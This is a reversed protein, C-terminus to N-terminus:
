AEVLAKQQKVIGAEKLVAALGAKISLGAKTSRPRVQPPQWEAPPGPHSAHKAAPQLCDLIRNGGRVMGELGEGAEVPLRARPPLPQVASAPRFFKSAPFLKGKYIVADVDSGIDAELVIPDDQRGTGGKVAVVPMAPPVTAISSAKSTLPPAQQPAASNASGQIRSPMENTTRKYSALWKARMYDTKRWPPLHMGCSKLSWKTADSMIDVLQQLRDPRGVFVIPVMQLAASYHQTPRAIQFQGRFDIDVILREKGAQDFLVDIYEYDGGPFGRSHDWRSKCVAANYGRTRLRAMVARRLCSGACDHGETSCLSTAHEERAIRLAKTVDMRIASELTSACHTLGQLIKALERFTYSDDREEEGSCLTESCSGTACNCRARGCGRQMQPEEMFEHVM